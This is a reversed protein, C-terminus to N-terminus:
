ENHPEMKSELLMHQFLRSIQIPSIMKEDECTIDSISIPSIVKKLLYYRGKSYTIDSIFYFHLTM